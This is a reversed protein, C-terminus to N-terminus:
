ARSHGCLRGSSRPGRYRKKHLEVLRFLGAAEANGTADRPVTDYEASACIVFVGSNARSLM